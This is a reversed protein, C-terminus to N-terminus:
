KKEDAEEREVTGKGDEKAEEEFRKKEMAKNYADVIPDGTNDM